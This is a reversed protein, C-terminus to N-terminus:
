PDSPSALVFLLDPPDFLQLRDRFLSAAPVPHPHTRLHDHQFLLLAAKLVEGSHDILRTRVRAKAARTLLLTM